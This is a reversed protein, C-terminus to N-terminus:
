PTVNVLMCFSRTPNIFRGSDIRPSNSDTTKVVTGLTSAWQRWEEKTQFEAHYTDVFAHDEHIAYLGHVVELFDRWQPSDCDHERLLVWRLRPASRLRVRLAERQDSTMHHLVMSLIVTDVEAFLSAADSATADMCHFSMSPFAESAREIVTRRTDVGDAREVKWHTALASLLSGDDCGIDLIRRPGTWLVKLMPQVLTRARSTSPTTERYPELERLRQYREADTWDQHPDLIHPHSVRQCVRAYFESDHM